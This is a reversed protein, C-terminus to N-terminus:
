FSVSKDEYKKDKEVMSTIIVTDSDKSNFVLKDDGFNVNYNELDIKGFQNKYISLVGDGESKALELEFSKGRVLVKGDKILFELFDYEKDLDCLSNIKDITASSLDFTIISNTKVIRTKFLNDSIYEFVRLSSCDIKMKLSSSKILIAIGALEKGSKGEMEDYQISLSFEGTQFHDLSKIIRHIDYIGIKLLPIEDSSEKKVTFGAESFSIQSYKVISKQENYSKAIFCRDDKNLELLLSKEISAFRKLWSSFPKVNKATFEITKAAM